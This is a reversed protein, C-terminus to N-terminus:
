TKEVKQHLTKNIENIFFENNNNLNEWERLGFPPHMCFFSPPSFFIVDFARSQDLRAKKEDSKKKM